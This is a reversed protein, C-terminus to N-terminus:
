CLCHYLCLQDEIYFLCLVSYLLSSHDNESDLVEEVLSTKKLSNEKLMSLSISM